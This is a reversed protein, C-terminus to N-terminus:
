VILGECCKTYCVLFMIICLIKVGAIIVLLDVINVFKGSIKLRKKVEVEIKKEDQCRRRQERRADKNVKVEKADLLM